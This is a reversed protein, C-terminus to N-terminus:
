GTRGGSKDKAYAKFISNADGILKQIEVDIGIITFREPFVLQFTKLAGLAVGVAMKLALAIPLPEAHLIGVSFDLQRDDGSKRMAMMVGFQNPHAGFDILNEYLKHLDAVTNPDLDEHTQRVKTISFESKCRSKAVANENRRLWIEARETGKPDKAIHLAYWACEVVSRLVSFAESVQGSMALRLGALYSSHTRVMLFRPVLFEERTDKAILDEFKKFVTHVSQLLDYEAPLNLATVRNNYEADKFFVSLSDNGWEPPKKEIM